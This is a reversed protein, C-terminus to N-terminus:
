FAAVIANKVNDYGEASGLNTTRTDDHADLYDVLKGETDYVYFDDKVGQHHMTWAQVEDLDQLLTFTGREELDAVRDAADAKNIGVVYIDYGETLLELRMKEMNGAQSAVIVEGARGVHAAITVKGKFQDLGYVGSM